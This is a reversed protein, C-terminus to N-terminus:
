ILVTQSKYKSFFLSAPCKEPAGQGVNLMRFISQSITPMKEPHGRWIIAPDFAFPCFGCAAVTSFQGFGFIFRALDLVLFGPCKELRGTRFEFIGFIFALCYMALCAPPPHVAPPGISSHGGLTPILM